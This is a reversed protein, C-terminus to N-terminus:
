EEAIGLDDYILGRVYDSMSIGNRRARAYVLRKVSKPIRVSLRKDKTVVKKNSAKM